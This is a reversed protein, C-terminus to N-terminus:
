KRASTNDYDIAIQRNIKKHMTVGHDEFVKVLYGGKNKINQFNIKMAYLIPHIEQVTLVDLVNEIQWDSLGCKIMYEIQSSNGTLEAAAANLKIEICLQDIKRGAKVTTYTCHLETLATIEQTAPVLVRRIFDFPKEYQDGVCFLKKLEDINVFKVGTNRFQCCMLYLRKAHKSKLSLLSHIEFGTYQKTTDLLIAGMKPNIRLNILGENKKITVESIIASLYWCNSEPYFVEIPKSLLSRCYKRLYEYNRKSDSDSPMLQLYSLRLFQKEEPTKARKLIALIKVLLDIEGASYNYKANVAENSLYGKGTLILENM